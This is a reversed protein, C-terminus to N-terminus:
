ENLTLPSSHLQTDFRDTRSNFWCRNRFGVFRHASSQLAGTMLTGGADACYLYVIDQFDDYGVVWDSKVALSRM